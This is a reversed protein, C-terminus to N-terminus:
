NRPQLNEKCTEGPLTVGEEEAVQFHAPECEGVEVELSAIVPDEEVRGRRDRDVEGQVALVRTGDEFSREVVPLRGEVPAVQTEVALGRHEGAAQVWDIHM